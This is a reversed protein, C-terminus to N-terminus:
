EQENLDKAQAKRANQEMEGRPYGEKEMDALQKV